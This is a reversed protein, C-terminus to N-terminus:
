ALVPHRLDASRARWGNDCIRATRYDDDACGGAMFLMGQEVKGAKARAKDFESLEVRLAQDRFGLSILGMQVQHRSIADHDVYLRRLQRYYDRWRALYAPDLRDVARDRAISPLGPAM